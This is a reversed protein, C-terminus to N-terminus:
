AFLLHNYLNSGNTIEQFSNPHCVKMQQHYDVEKEM